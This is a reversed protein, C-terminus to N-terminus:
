DEMHNRMQHKKELEDQRQRALIPIWIVISGPFIAFFPFSNDVFGLIISTIYSIGSVIVIIVIACIAKQYKDM